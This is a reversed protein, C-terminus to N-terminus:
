TSGRRLGQPLVDESPWWGTALTREYGQVLGAAVMAAVTSKFNYRLRGYRNCGRNLVAFCTEPTGCNPPMGIAGANIWRGQRFGLGCHGAVVGDLPGMQAEAQKIPGSVAARPWIFQAIDDPGGHLVGYRRGAHTFSIRDPLARMWRLSKASITARAHAFWGTSLRDCASGAQFGCGCDTAGAALNRECNGAISAIGEQQFLACCAEGDACYAVIDGTCVPVAGLRNAEDLVAKLASLNGYVGGFLLVPGELCGLDQIQM